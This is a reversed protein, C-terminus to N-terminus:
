ANKKIKKLIKRIRCDIILCLIGLNSIKFDTYLKGNKSYCKVDKFYFPLKAM